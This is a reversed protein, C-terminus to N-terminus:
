SDASTSPAATPLLSWTGPSSGTPSAGVKKAPRWEEGEANRLVLAVLCTDAKDKESFPSTAIEGATDAYNRPSIGLAPAQGLRSLYILSIQEWPLHCSDWQQCVRGKSCKPKEGAHAPTVCILQRPVGLGELVRGGAGEVGQCENVQNRM